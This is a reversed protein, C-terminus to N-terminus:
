RGEMMRITSNLHYNEERLTSITDKLDAIRDRCEDVHDLLDEIDDAMAELDGPTVGGYGKGDRYANLANRIDKTKWLWPHRTAPTTM